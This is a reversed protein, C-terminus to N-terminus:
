GGLFQIQCYRVNDVLILFEGLERQIDRSVFRSYQKHSLQTGDFHRVPGASEGIAKCDSASPSVLGRKSGRRLTAFRHTIGASLLEVASHDRCIGVPVFHRINEKQQSWGFLLENAM